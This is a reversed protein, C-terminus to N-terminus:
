KLNLISHIEDILAQDEKCKKQIEAKRESSATLEEAKLAEISKQLQEEIDTLNNNSNDDGDAETNQTSYKLQSQIEITKRQQQAITDRVEKLVGSVHQKDVVLSLRDKATHPHSHYFFRVFRNNAYAAPSNFAETAEETSSFTISACTGFAYISLIRGFSKFHQFLHPINCDKAPVHSLYLTQNPVLQKKQGSHTM